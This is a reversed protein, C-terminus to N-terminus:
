IAVEEKYGESEVEKRCGEWVQLIRAVRSIFVTNSPKDSYRNSPFYLERTDCCQDWAFAIAARIASDILEADEPKNCANAVAPYLGKVIMQAPDSFYIMIAQVLYEFGDYNTPIGIELLLLIVVYRVNKRSFMKALFRLHEIAENIAAVM